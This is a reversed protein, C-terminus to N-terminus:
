GGAQGVLYEVAMRVQEDSLAPNGGKPPMYGAEGQFGEVAHQVLTDMGKAIRPEWAAKDGTKPAGAIGAGHCATCASQYVAEGSDLSATAGAASGAAPEASDGKPAMGGPSRLGANDAGAVAVQGVPEIRAEVQAQLAPDSKVFQDQTRGSIWQALIYIGVAVAVLAGIVLMFTDFFKRDQEATM